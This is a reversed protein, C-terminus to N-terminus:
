TLTSMLNIDEWQNIHLIPISISNNSFISKRRKLDQRLSVRNKQHAVPPNEITPARLQQSLKITKLNKAALNNIKQHNKPSRWNLTNNSLGIISRLALNM